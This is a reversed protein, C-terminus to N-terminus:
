PLCLLIWFGAVLVLSDALWCGAIAPFYSIKVFPAYPSLGTYLIIINYLAYSNGSLGTSTRTLWGGAVPLRRCLEPTSYAQRYLIYLCIGALVCVRVPCSVGTGTQM